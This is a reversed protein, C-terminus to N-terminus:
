LRGAGCSGLSPSDELSQTRNRTQRVRPANYGLVEPSHGKRAYTEYRAPAGTLAKYPLRKGVSKQVMLTM